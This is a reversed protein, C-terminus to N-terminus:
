GNSMTVFAIGLFAVAVVAVLIWMIMNIRRSRASQPAPESQPPTSGDGDLEAM